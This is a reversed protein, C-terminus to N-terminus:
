KEKKTGNGKFFALDIALRDQNDKQYARPLVQVMDCGNKEAQEVVEKLEEVTTYAELREYEKGERNKRTKPVAFLTSKLRSSNIM